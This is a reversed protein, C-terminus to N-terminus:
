SKDHPQRKKTGGRSARNHQRNRQTNSGGGRQPRRTNEDRQRDDRRRGYTAQRNDGRRQTSGRGTGYRRPGDQRRSNFSSGMRSLATQTLRLQATQSAVSLVSTVDSEFFDEFGPKTDELASRVDASQPKLLNEKRESALKNYSAALSRVAYGLTTAAKGELYTTAKEILTAVEPESTMSSAEVLPALADSSISDLHSAVAHAPAAYSRQRRALRDDAQKATGTLPLQAPAKPPRFATAARSTYNAEIKDSQPWRDGGAGYGRMHWWINNAGPTPCLGQACKPIVSTIGPLLTHAVGQYHTIAIPAPELEDPSEDGLTSGPSRLTDEDSEESESDFSSEGSVDSLLVVDPPPTPSSMVPAAPSPVTLLHM